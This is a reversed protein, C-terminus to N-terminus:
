RRLCDPRSPDAMVLLNYLNLLCCEYAPVPGLVHSSEATGAVTVQDLPCVCESDDTPLCVPEPLLFAESLTKEFGKPSFGYYTKHQSGAYM